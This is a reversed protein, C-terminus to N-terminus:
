AEDIVTDEHDAKRRPICEIVLELNDDFGRQNLLRDLPTVSMM